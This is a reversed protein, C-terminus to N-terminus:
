MMKGDLFKFFGDRYSDSVPIKADQIIVHNMVIKEIHQTNVIYSIHVRKFQVPLLTEMEKMRKYILLKEKKLQINVYEKEGKIFIIDDFNIKVIQRGTKAFLFSPAPEEAVPLTVENGALQDIKFVAQNFRKFTIPKLLYDIVHFSFSNLAHEAYATIFVFKQNRPLIDALEFGTLLPMQIDTFIVDAKNKKLFELAEVGDFFKGKLELSPIKTIYSDLLALANPEDDIIICSIKM